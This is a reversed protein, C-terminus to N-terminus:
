LLEMRDFPSVRLTRVTPEGSVGAISPTITLQFTASQIFGRAILLTASRAAPNPMVTATGSGSTLVLKVDYSVGTIQQDAALQPSWTLQVTHTRSVVDYGTQQAAVTLPMKWGPRTYDTWSGTTVTTAVTAKQSWLASAASVGVGALVVVLFTVAAARWARRSPAASRPASPTM